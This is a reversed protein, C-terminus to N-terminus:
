VYFEIKVIKGIIKIDNAQVTQTMLNGNNSILLLKNGDLRKIQRLVRLNNYEILCIANNEIEGTMHGFAIDDKMIRFGTMDNNEIKIFFVKDQNFGEIKNDVVPLSKKSIVNKFSYDYVPVSKLISSFADTWVANTEKKKLPTKFAYKSENTEEEENAIMNIDNIDKGFLKKIRHIMNDNIVKRGCEVENIFKEAVGLKKAFQKQSLKAEERIKRIKEGARNM